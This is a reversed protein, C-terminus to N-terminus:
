GGAKITFEGLTGYNYIWCAMTTWVGNAYIASGDMRTWASGDWQSINTVNIEVFPEESVKLINTSANTGSSDYKNTTNVWVDGVAPSAPANPALTVAGIAVDTNVWITNDKPSSPQTAGGVIEIALGGGGAGGGFKIINPM